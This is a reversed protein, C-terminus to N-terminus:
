SSHQVAPNRFLRLARAPAARDAPHVALWFGPRTDNSSGCFKRFSGSNYRRPSHDGSCITTKVRAIARRNAKRDDYNKADRDCCSGALSAVRDGFKIGGLMDDREIRAPATTQARGDCWCAEIVARGVHWRFGALQDRNIEFGPVHTPFYFEGRRERGGGTIAEDERGSLGRRRTQLDSRCFRTAFVPQRAMPPGQESRHPITLRREFRRRSRRM